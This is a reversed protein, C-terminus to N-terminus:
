RLTKYIYGGRTVVWPSGDADMSIGLAEGELKKWGKAYPADAGGPQNPAIYPQEVWAYVHKGGGLPGEVNDLIYVYSLPDGDVNEAVPGATIDTALRDTALGELVEWSTASPSPLRVVKNNLLVAWPRGNADVAIRSAQAGVPAGWSAGALSQHALVSLRRLGYGDAACGVIWVSGDWGVDVDSACSGPVVQTWTGSGATSTSRVYVSGAQVVWPKGSGDVAIRNAMFNDNAGANNKTRSWGNGNRQYILYGNAGLTDGLIWPVGSPGVDIGSAAGDLLQWTDYLINVAVRDDVALSRMTTDKGLGPRMIADIGPENIGNDDFISSHRLGIAHGIEHLIVSRLDYEAASPSGDVSWYVTSGLLGSSAANIQIDAANPPGGTQYGLWQLDAKEHWRIRINPNAGRAFTITTAQSWTAFAATAENQLVTAITQSGSPPPDIVPTVQSNDDSTSPVINWSVTVGRTYGTGVSLKEVEWLGEPVGCRPASMLLRTAADVRGTPEIGSFAQLESVASATVGDFFGNVPSESVFPRWGPHEVALVPNPLYGYTRLYAQVAQVEIGRM